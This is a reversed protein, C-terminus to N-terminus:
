EAADIEDIIEQVRRAAEDVTAIPFELDAVEEAYQEAWSNWIRVRPPWAHSDRLEFIEVCARRVVPLAEEELLDRILTIDILDRSRENPKGNHPVDTCAHLKQAIQYRLPLCAVEDPGELGYEDIEFAPVLDVEDLAGGEASMLELKLKQFSRGRYSVRIETNIFSLEDNFYPEDVREFTFDGYPERLADDLQAIVDDFPIKHSVDLDQTARANLNARLEMTVGGKLVFLWRDEADRIRDLLGAMVMFSIRRQLRPAAVGTEKSHDAIWSHLVGVHAPPKEKKKWTV